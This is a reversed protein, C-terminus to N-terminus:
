QAVPQADAFGRIYPVNLILSSNKINVPINALTQATIIYNLNPPLNTLINNNGAPSLSEYGDLILSFTIDPNSRIIRHLLTTKGSQVPGVIIIKM